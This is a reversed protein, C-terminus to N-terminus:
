QGRRKGGSDAPKDLLLFDRLDVDPFAKALGEIVELSGVRKGNLIRSLCSETIRMDLALAKRSLDREDMLKKVYEINIM